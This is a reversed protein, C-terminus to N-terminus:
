IVLVRQNEQNLDLRVEKIRKVLEDNFHENTEMAKVFRAMLIWSIALLMLPPGLHMLVPSSFQQLTLRTYWDHFGLVWTSLLGVSLVLEAPDDSDLWHRFVAICAYSAMLLSGIHWILAVFINQLAFIFVSSILMYILLYREWVANNKQIFHLSFVLLSCAFWGITVYVLFHWANRGIPIELLFNNLIFFASSFCIVSFWAYLTDLRRLYWLFLTLLGAFINMFFTIKALDVQIFDRMQYLPLLKDQEGILLESLGIKKLYLGQQFTIICLDQGIERYLSQFIDQIELKM